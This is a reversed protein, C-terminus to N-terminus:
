LLGALWGLVRLAALAAWGLVGTLLAKGIGFDLAVSLALVGAVLIWIAVVAAVLWGVLPLIALFMLLGPAQAFGLARLLQGWTATGGLLKDGIVWTVASWALWGLYASILGGIVAMPGLAAGGVAASLAVLGVVGAAQGTAGRDRVAESFVGRQLLAAGSMRQGMTRPGALESPLEDPTM